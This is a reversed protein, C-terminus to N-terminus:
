SLLQAVCPLISRVDDPRRCPVPWNACLHVSRDGSVVSLQSCARCSLGADLCVGRARVFFGLAIINFPHFRRFDDCCVLVLLAFFLLAASSYLFAPKSAVYSKIDPVLVAFAIVAATFAVQGRLLLLM